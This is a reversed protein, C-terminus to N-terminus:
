TLIPAATLVCRVSVDVLGKISEDVPRMVAFLDSSATDRDQGFEYWAMLLLTKVTDISAVALLQLVQEKAKSAWCRAAGDQSASM